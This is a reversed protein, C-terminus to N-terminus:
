DTVYRLIIKMTFPEDYKSEDEKEFFPNNEERPNLFMYIEDKLKEKLIEFRLYWSSTRILIINDTATVSRVRFQYNKYKVYKGILSQLNKYAVNFREGDTQPIIMKRNTYKFIMLSNSSVTDNCEFFDNKTYGRDLLLEGEATKYDNSVFFIPNKKYIKQNTVINLREYELSLGVIGLTDADPKAMPPLVPFFMVGTVHNIYTPLSITKKIHPSNILVDTVFYHEM